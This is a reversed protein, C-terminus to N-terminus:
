TTTTTTGEMRVVEDRVASLGGARDRLRLLVIWAARNEAAGVPGRALAPTTFLPAKGRGPVRFLGTVTAEIRPGDPEGFGVDFADFEEATLFALRVTSGPSIGNDKAWSEAAVVENPNAPDAQRGAVVVPALLDAPRGSGVVVGAYVIGAGEVRAVTYTGIWAKEVPRLGAIAEPLGADDGYVVARLDDIATATVLRDYATGTRRAVAIAGVVVAAVLGAALGIAVYSAWRRRLDHRAIGVVAGTAFRREVVDAVQRSGSGTLAVAGVV